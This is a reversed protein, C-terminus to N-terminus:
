IWVHKLITIQCFGFDCYIIHGRQLAAITIVIINNIYNLLVAIGLIRTITILASPTLLAM